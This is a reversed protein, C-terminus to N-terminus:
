GVFWDTKFIADEGRWIHTWGSLKRKGLRSLATTEASLLGM